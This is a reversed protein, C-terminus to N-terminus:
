QASILHRWCAVYLVKDRVRCMNVYVINMVCIISLKTTQTIKEILKYSLISYVYKCFILEKCM